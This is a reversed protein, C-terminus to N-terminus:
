EELHEKAMGLITRVHDDALRYYVTKGERRPKILKAQRIIRLQYSMAPQSIGLIHALDCVCLEQSFLAYLIRVRTHDGFIKFLEAMDCLLTDPPMQDEVSALKEEHIKHESCFLNNQSM